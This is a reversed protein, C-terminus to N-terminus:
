LSIQFVLIPKHIFSDPTGSGNINNEHKHLEPILYGIAAGVIYGVIVDTPFHNHTNIRSFGTVAPIIAAATWILTKATSSTLYESFVRATFFSNSAAFSTHGSYFSHRASTKYKEEAPSNVDYVYPRNRTTLGKVLGNIGANLLVVEAYMLSLTGFDEKADNNALFTLPLLFSSYVLADGLIDEQYPGIAIRDFEWVKEPSLSKIGEETLKDNNSIILIAAVGIAAGAGIIAAEKGSSLEFPENQTSQSFSFSLSFIVSLAFFSISRFFNM